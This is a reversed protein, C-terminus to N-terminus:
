WTPIKMIQALNISNKLNYFRIFFIIHAFLVMYRCVGFYVLWYKPTLKCYVIEVESSIWSIDLVLLKSAVFLLTILRPLLNPVWFLCKKLVLPAWWSLNCFLWKLLIPRIWTQVTLILPKIFPSVLDSHPQSEHCIYLTITRAFRM